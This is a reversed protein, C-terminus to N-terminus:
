GARKFWSNCVGGANVLKEPSIVCAGWGADVADTYFQCGSCLKNADASQHTYMLSKAAPDDQSLKAVDAAQAEHLAILGSLPVAMAGTAFTRVIRRRRKNM